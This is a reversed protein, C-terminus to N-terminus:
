EKGNEDTLTMPTSPTTIEQLTEPEEAHASWTSATILATSLVAAVKKTRAFM